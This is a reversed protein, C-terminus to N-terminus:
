KKLVQGAKLSKSIGKELVTQGNVFVYEIGEPYRYPNEYTANSRIGADFVVVDAFYDVALKGRHKLGMKEAPTLTIKKIAAELPMINKELVWSIFQPMTGFCRPHVLRGKENISFGSGDTAIISLSHALLQEVQAQDLNKEFVLIESGGNEVVSLLAEESTTDQRKALEGLTKGVVNLPMTTSAVSISAYDIDKSMLYAIIKKRQVPDKLHHLMVERGGEYSWRPLYTYIVQWMTEYPYIDFHVMGKKQYSDEIMNLAHTLLHWNSKNKVKFHSIKLNVNLKNVLELAEAVSETLEAAESRLHLSLLGDKEKVIRALEMLESESIIAEHAYSLGSSLGFAGEEMSRSLVKKLTNMEGTTLGRIEDGVLGRRLTSYGVLSAINIGVGSKTLAKLYDAFNLWDVNAGELNHWKQVSLLAQRSLIPALSAGCNGVLATTIGQALMSQLGPNDFLSWYVDSHNQIDIFGPAVYKGQADIVEQAKAKGTNGVIVIKDESFALDAKFPKSGTGDIITGNKIIKTYM